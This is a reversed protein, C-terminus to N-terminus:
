RCGPAREFLRALRSGTGVTGPGGQARLSRRPRLRKLLELLKERAVRLRAIRKPPPALGQDLRGRPNSMGLNKMEIVDKLEPPLGRWLRVSSPRGEMPVGDDSQGDVPLVLRWPPPEPMEGHPFRRPGGV